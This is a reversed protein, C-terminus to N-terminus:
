QLKQNVQSMLQYTRSLDSQAHKFIASFSRQILNESLPQCEYMLYFYGLQEGSLGLITEIVFNLHM